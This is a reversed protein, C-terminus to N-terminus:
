DDNGVRRFGVGGKKIVPSTKALMKLRAVRPDIDSEEPESYNQEDDYEESEEEYESLVSSRVEERIKRLDNDERQSDAELSLDLAQEPSTKKLSELVKKGYGNHLENHFFLSLDYTLQETLKSAFHQSMLLNQIHNISSTEKETFLKGGCSPCLNKMLAFKMNNNVKFGCNNCNIM